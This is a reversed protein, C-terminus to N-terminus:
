LAGSFEYQRRLDTLEEILIQNEEKLKFIEDSIKQDISLNHKNNFRQQDLERELNKIKRNMDVIMMTMDTKFIVDHDFQKKSAELKETLVKIEEDKKKILDYTHHSFTELRNKTYLGKPNMVMDFADDVDKIAVLDKLNPDTAFLHDELAREQEKTPSIVNLEM